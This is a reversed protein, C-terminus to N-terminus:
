ITTCQYLVNFQFSRKDCYVWKNLYQLHIWYFKIWYGCVCVALICLNPFSPSQCFYCKNNRVIFINPLVSHFESIDMFVWWCASVTCECEHMCAFIYYYSLSVFFIFSARPISPSHLLVTSLKNFTNSSFPQKNMYTNILPKMQTTFYLWWERIWPWKFLISHLSTFHIVTMNICLSEVCKQKKDKLHNLILIYIPYCQQMALIVTMPTVHGFIFCYPAFIYVMFRQSSKVSRTASTTSSTIIPKDLCVSACFCVSSKGCQHQFVNIVVHNASIYKLAREMRSRFHCWVKVSFNWEISYTFTVFCLECKLLTSQKGKLAVCVRTIRLSTWYLQINSWFDWQAGWLHPQKVYFILWLYHSKRTKQM